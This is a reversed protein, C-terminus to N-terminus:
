EVVDIPEAQTGIAMMRWVYYIIGIVTALILLMMLIKFLTRM